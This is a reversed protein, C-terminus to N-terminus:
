DRDNVAEAEACAVIPTPTPADTSNDVLVQKSILKPEHLIEM